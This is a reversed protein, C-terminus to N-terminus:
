VYEEIVDGGSEFNAGGFEDPDFDAYLVYFASRRQKDYESLSSWQRRAEQRAEEVTNFPKDGGFSDGNKIEDIVFYRKM